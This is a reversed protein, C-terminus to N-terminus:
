RAPVLSGADDQTLEVVRLHRPRPDRYEASDFACYALYLRGDPSQFLSGGAPGQETGTSALLPTPGGRVCPGRPGDPCAAWGTAYRSRGASNARWANGSYVLLYRGEWYTMSPNEITEGEWSSEDTRLLTVPERGAIPRGQGDLEISKLSSPHSGVKGASKWLLYWKGSVPDLFPEPDISGAPDSDCVLPADTRDRFPGTASPGVAMSICFRGDGQPDDSVPSVKIAYYLVWSDGIRAASPAWITRRLWPGRPEDLGWRAPAVLADNHNWVDGAPGLRLDSSRIEEPISTDALPDPGGFWPETATTWRDRVVWTELDVSTVVPLYRGAAPSAYAVYREGDRVVFPDGFDGRWTLGAEFWGYPNRDDANDADTLTPADDIAPPVPELPTATPLPESLQGSNESSDAISCSTGLVLVAVLLLWRIHVDASAGISDTM